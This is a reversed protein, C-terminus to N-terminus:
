SAVGAFIAKRRSFCFLSILGLGMLLLTNPEPTMVIYEQFASNTGKLSGENAATIVEFGSTLANGPAESWNELGTVAAQFTGSPPNPFTLYPQDTSNFGASLQWIAGQLEQDTLASNGSQEMKMILAALEGYLTNAASPSLGNNIVQSTHSMSTLNGPTAINASYITGVAPADHDPDVCWLNVSQTGIIGTYPDIYGTVTGLSPDSIELLPNGSYGGTFTVSDAHATAGVLLVLATFLTAVVISRNMWTFM